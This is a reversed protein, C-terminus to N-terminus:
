FVAKWHRESATLYAVEFMKHNSLLSVFKQGVLGTAGLVAVRYKDM